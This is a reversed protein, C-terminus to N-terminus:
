NALLKTKQNQFEAETLAGSDKAKQLDLLQQGVTATRTENKTGGGLHLGLCGTLVLSACLALSPIVILKKMPRINSFPILKQNNKIRGIASKLM